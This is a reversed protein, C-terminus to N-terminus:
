RREGTMEMRWQHLGQALRMLGARDTVAGAEATLAALRHQANLREAQRDLLATLEADPLRAGGPGTAGLAEAVAKRTLDLYRGAMRPERRALRILGASNDALAQKGLAIARGARRPPGFRAIAQLAMLVAAAALCLTAGLFPPQLALKLLGRSRNFGDLTLDFIIPGDGKRLRQVIAVAARATNLDKIGRTDMLDPDSLVFARSDATGALLTRGRGDRVLPILGDGGTFTQLQDIPGTALPAPGLGSLSAPAAGQDRVITLTGFRKALLKAVEDAPLAGFAVVWGPNAPDPAAAWKPLVVLTPGATTMDSLKDTDTGLQPTLVLLSTTAQRADPDRSVVVPDGIAKLLRVVGAFGIASRSLAHGGGDSGDRLDPEYTSLVVFASFAFVGAILLAIVTRASFAGAEAKPPLSAEAQSM